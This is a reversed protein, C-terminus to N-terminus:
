HKKKAKTGYRTRANRECSSRQKGRKGKCAKLARALQQARTLKKTTVKVPEQPFQIQPVSLQALVLPVSLVSPLGQTTFTTTEGRAEGYGSKVVIRYAYTTGPRLGSLALEESTPTTGAGAPGSFLVGYQTATGYVGLEFSYTADFGDPNVTGAITASTATVNGYPGTSASPAPAPGTTFTGEEGKTEGGEKEANYEFEDNGVLRYHYTTSPQLESAEQQVPLLALEKSQLPATQQRGPCNDLSECAGYQFRYVTPANEPHITASFVATAFASTATAVSPKGPIEPAPARTKCSLTGATLPAAPKTPSGEPNNEDYGTVRYSYTENPELGTLTAAIPTPPAAFPEKFRAAPVQPINSNLENGAGYQFWAETGPVSNPDVTGGLTFGSTTRATCPSTTLTAVPAPKYLQIDQNGEDTAYLEGGANFALGHRGAVGSPALPSFESRPPENGEDGTSLEFVGGYQALNADIVAIFPAVPDLALAEVNTGSADFIKSSTKAGPSFEYVGPPTHKAEDVGVSHSETIYLDGASDVALANPKTEAPFTSLPLPLEAEWGGSANLEQVRNEDAVYLLDKPGGVALVNGGLLFPIQFQGHVKGSPPSQVGKECKDSPHGPYPCLNEETTRGELKATGNVEGGIMLVFEGNSKLEQVRFNLRDAVYVNGTAQDVAVSTPENFQGALSGEEGKKCKDGVKVPCVGENATEHNNHATENVDRGFMLVFKGEPEFEEVRQNGPDAVYVLHKTGDYVAVSRPATFGGAEASSAGVRCKDSPHGPYPCINEESTRGELSATENVHWGFQLSLRLHNSVTAGATAATLLVLALMAAISLGAITRQQSTSM